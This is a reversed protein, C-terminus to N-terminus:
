DMVEGGNWRDLTGRRLFVVTRVVHSSVILIAYLTYTLQLVAGSLPVHRAVMVNSLGRFGSHLMVYCILFNMTVLWITYTHLIKNRMSAKRYAKSLDIGLADNLFWFGDSGPFPLLSFLAALIAFMGGIQIARVPSVLLLSAFTIQFIVGAIAIKAQDFVSALHLSSVDTTVVPLGRSLRVRISGVLDTKKLCLVAHGLEHAFISSLYAAFMMLFDQIHMPRGIGHVRNSLGNKFASALCAVSVISIIVSLPRSTLPILRRSLATVTKSSLHLLDRSHKRDQKVDEDTDADVKKLLISIERSQEFQGTTQCTRLSDVFSRSLNSFLYRKTGVAIIVQSDGISMDDINSATLSM